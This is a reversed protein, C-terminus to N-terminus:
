GAYDLGPFFADRIHRVERVHDPRGAVAVVDFRIEWDHDVHRMYAMAADILLRKKRETVMEEPAGFGTTSRCKVEIFVLIENDRGIIDIEARRYRWNRALIEMGGQRLVEVALDEAWQGHHRQITM